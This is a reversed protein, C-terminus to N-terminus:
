SDKALKEYYTQLGEYVALAIDLTELVQVSEERGDKEVQIKYQTNGLLGSEELLTLQYMHNVTDAKITRTTM